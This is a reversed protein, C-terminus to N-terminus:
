AWELAVEIHPAGESWVDAPDILALRLAESPKRSLNLPRAGGQRVLDVLRVKARATALDGVFVLLCLGAGLSEAAPAGGAFSIILRNITGAEPLSHIAQDRASDFLIIEGSGQPRGSFLVTRNPVPLEDEDEIQFDPPASYAISDMAFMDLSLARSAFNPDDPSGVDRQCLIRERLPSYARKAAKRAPALCAM